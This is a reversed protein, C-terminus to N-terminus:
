NGGYMDTVKHSFQDIFVTMEVLINRIRVSLFNYIFLAPIGVILGCLTGTLASAIGPAIVMINAEGAKAMAAFTNMVGWVTGVLGILPGGSIGLMFLVIWTNLKKSEDIFGKELATRFANMAEPGLRKEENSAGKGQLLKSLHQCGSKYIHFLSSNPFEEASKELSFLGLENSYANLFAINEKEVLRLSFTKTLFIFGIVAAFFLM